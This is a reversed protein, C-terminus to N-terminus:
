DTGVAAAEDVDPRRRGYRSTLWIGGLILVIGVVNAVGRDLPGLPYAIAGDFTIEATTLESTGM